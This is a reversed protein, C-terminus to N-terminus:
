AQATSISPGLPGVIDSAANECVFLLGLRRILRLRNRLAPARLVLSGVQRIVNEGCPDLRDAHARILGFEYFPGPQAQLVNVGKASLPCAM